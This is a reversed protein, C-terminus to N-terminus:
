VEATVAGCLTRISIEHSEAARFGARILYSVPPKTIQFEGRGLPHRMIERQSM